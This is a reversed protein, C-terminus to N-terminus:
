SRFQLTLAAREGADNSLHGIINTGKAYGKRCAADALAIMAAGALSGAEGICEAPHWLDFEAKPRHLTRALALAAEKFYYQEGSLDTIRFDFDEMARGAESLAAGIARALGDARLPQESDIHAQERAFGIGTCLLGKQEGAESVLLAGAGEGPLFGNSNDQRLLRDCRDYHLLTLWCLLSDVAVILVRHAVRTELMKRAQALAVAVGVRGQAIVASQSAFTAELMEEIRRLLREDLHDLRGPRAAEAVCLLVPIETWEARAVDRLAEEAVAAAMGALKSLGNEIGEVCVRHVTIWAGTSDMFESPVPNTLKSRIAACSSPADGGVSTMLGTRLIVV